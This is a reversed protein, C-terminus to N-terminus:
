AQVEAGVGAYYQTYVRCVELYPEAVPESQNVITLWLVMTHWYGGHACQCKITTHTYCLHM